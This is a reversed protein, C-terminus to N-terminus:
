GQPVGAVLLRAAPLAAPDGAPRAAAAPRSFGRPGRAARSGGRDLGHSRRGRRGASGAHDDRRPRHPPRRADTDGVAENAVAGPRRPDGRGDPPGGARAPSRAAGEDERAGEARGADACRRRARGALRRPGAGRARSGRREGEDEPQAGPGARRAAPAHGERDVVVSPARRLGSARPRGGVADPLRAGRAHRDHLRLARPRFPAASSVAVPRRWERVAAALRALDAPAGDIVGERFALARLWAEHGSEPKLAPMAGAATRVLQDVLVVVVHDLAEVASGRPPA